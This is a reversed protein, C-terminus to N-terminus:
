HASRWGKRSSQSSSGKVIAVSRLRKRWYGPNSRIEDMFRCAMDNPINVGQEWARITKPSVGLFQAFLHQSIGLVERRTKKVLAPDYPTPQLNLIVRHCTFRESIAEKSKLAKEFGQLRSAIEQGVTSSPRGVSPKM